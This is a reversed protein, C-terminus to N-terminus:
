KQAFGYQSIKFNLKKKSHPSIHKIFVAASLNNFGTRRKTNNTATKKPKKRM